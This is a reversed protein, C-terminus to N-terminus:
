RSLRIFTSAAELVTTFWEQLIISTQFITRQSSVVVFRSIFTEMATIVTQSAIAFIISARTASTVDVVHKSTRNTDCFTTRTINIARGVIGTGCATRTTGRAGFRGPVACATVSRRVSRSVEVIVAVLITRPFKRDDGQIL